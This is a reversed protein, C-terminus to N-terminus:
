PGGGLQVQVAAGDARALDALTIRRLAVEVTHGVWRWVGRVTCGHGHTCAAHRGAHEACFGDHYLPEDLGRVVDWATIEAPPRALRHGGQVGRRAVVLGLQRLQRLLKAAYDGSMGEADALERISRSELGAIEARALALMIRLGYEETASVRM